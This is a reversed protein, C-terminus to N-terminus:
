SFQKIKKLLNRIGRGSKGTTRDIWKGTGPWFDFREIVILHAGDNHSAYSIGADDLIQTARERNAKRKIKGAEKFARFTDGVDGM